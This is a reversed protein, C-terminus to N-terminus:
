ECKDQWWKNWQVFGETTWFGWDRFKKFRIFISWAPAPKTTWDYNFLEVRHRYTGPRFRTGIIPYVRKRVAQPAFARDCGEIWIDNQDCSNRVIQEIDHSFERKESHEIYGRWLPIM